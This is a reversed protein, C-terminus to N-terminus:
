TAAAAAAAAAARRLSEAASPDSGGAIRTSGLSVLGQGLGKLKNHWLPDGTEPDVRWIEGSTAAFLGDGDWFVSLYDSGLQVRWVEDGTDRDLAVVRGRIGVFLLSRGIM